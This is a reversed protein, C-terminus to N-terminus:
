PEVKKCNNENYFKLLIDIGKVLERKVQTPHNLGLNQKIQEQTAGNRYYLCVKLPLGDIEVNLPELYQNNGEPPIFLNLNEKFDKFQQSYQLAYFFSFALMGVYFYFFVTIQTLVYALLVMITGLFLLIIMVVGFVLQTFREFFRESM